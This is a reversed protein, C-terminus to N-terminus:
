PIKPLQIASCNLKVNAPIGQGATEAAVEFATFAGVSGAPPLKPAAAAIAKECATLQAEMALYVSARAPFGNSAAYAAATKLDEHTFKVLPLNSIDEATPVKTSACGALAFALCLVITRM